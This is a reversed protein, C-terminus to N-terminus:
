LSEKELGTVLNFRTIKVKQLINMIDEIPGYPTEKDAKIVTRLKPNAMRAQVLMNALTERDELEIGSKLQNEEGFVRARLRQSDLGLFMKNDKTVTVTMVDSEPLKFQSTSSPLAVEAESPPKFHTTLMFFTLLLMVVDVMPTMDIFINIRGKKKHAM